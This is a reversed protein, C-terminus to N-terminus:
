PGPRLVDFVPLPLNRVVWFAVIVALAAWGFRPSVSVQWKKATFAGWAENAWWLAFGPLALVFLPNYGLARWLNGQLLNHTARLTGCGPCYAGTLAHFPCPPILYFQPPRLYLCVLAVTSGAVLLVSAWREAYAVRMM